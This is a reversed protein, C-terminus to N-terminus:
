CWDEDFNRPEEEINGGFLALNVQDLLIGRGQELDDMIKSAESNFSNELQKMQLYLHVTTTDKVNQTTSSVESEPVNLATHFIMLEDVDDSV